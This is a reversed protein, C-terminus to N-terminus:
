AHVYVKSGGVKRGRQCYCLGCLEPDTLVASVLSCFVKRTGGRQDGQAGWGLFSSKSKEIVGPPPPPSFCPGWKKYNRLDRQNPHWGPSKDVWGGKQFFSATHPEQSLPRHSWCFPSVQLLTSELSHFLSSLAQLLAKKPDSSDVTGKPTSPSSLGM